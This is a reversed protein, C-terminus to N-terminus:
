EPQEIWPVSTVGMERKGDEGYATWDSYHFAHSHVHQLAQDSTALCVRRWASPASEQPIVYVIQTDSDAHNLSRAIHNNSMLRIVDAHTSRVWEHDSWLGFVLDITGDSSPKFTEAKTEEPRVGWYSSLWVKIIRRTTKQISPSFWLRIPRARWLPNECAGLPGRFEIKRPIMHPLASHWRQIMLRLDIEDFQQDGLQNLFWNVHFRGLSYFWHEQATASMIGAVDREGVVKTAAILQDLIYDDWTTNTKIVSEHIGVKTLYDAPIMAFLQQKDSPSLGLADLRSRWYRRGIFHWVGLRWWQPFDVYGNGELDIQNAVGFVLTLRLLDGVSRYFGSKGNPAPLALVSPVIRVELNNGMIHALRPSDSYRSADHMRIVPTLDIERAAIIRETAVRAASRMTEDSLFRDLVTVSQRQRDNIGDYDAFEGTAVAMSLHFGLNRVAAVVEHDGNYIGSNVVSLFERVDNDTVLPQPGLAPAAVGGHVRWMAATVEVGPDWQSVLGETRKVNGNVADRLPTINM